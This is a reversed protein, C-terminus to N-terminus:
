GINGYYRDLYGITAAAMDDYNGSKRAAASVLADANCNVFRRLWRSDARDTRVYWAIFDYAAARKSREEQQGWPYNFVACWCKHIQNDISDASLRITKKAM